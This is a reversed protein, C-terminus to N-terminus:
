LPVIEWDENDHSEKQRSGQFVMDKVGKLMSFMTAPSVIGLKVVLPCNPPCTSAGDSPTVWAAEKSLCCAEINPYKVAEHATLRAGRQILTERLALLHENLKGFKQEELRSIYEQIYGLATNQHALSFRDRPGPLTIHANPSAGFDLLLQLINPDLRNELARQWVTMGNCQLNPDAGKELLFIIM